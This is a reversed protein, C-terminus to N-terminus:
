GGMQSEGAMEEEVFDHDLGTIDLGMAAQWDKAGESNRYFVELEYLSAKLLIEPHQETWFSKTQTWTSGALTASLTPSYFLGWIQVTRAQDSPPMVVIGNYTWHGTISPTSTYLILDETDYLGTLSAATATDPYPRLVAPAYYAPTGQDVESLKQGYYERLQELTAVTLSSMGDSNSIWVGKIARLGATYVLIQGVALAATYRAQMKGSGQMRDLFRQGANIFFDAGNDTKNTKILDYRGSLKVFKERIDKYDM